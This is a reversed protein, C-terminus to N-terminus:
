TFVQIVVAIEKWSPYIQEPRCREETTGCQREKM